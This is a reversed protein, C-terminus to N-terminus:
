AGAGSVGLAATARRRDRYRRALEAAVLGTALAMSPVATMQYRPINLSILAYFLLNFAGIGLLLLLLWDRRRVAAILVALLAPLGIVVFEDVWIGRYLLPLTAAAHELPHTVISMFLSRDLDRMAEIEGIGRTEMLDALRRGYGHQGNDYFGGPQALDFPEVVDAPFLRRALGNGFGRTWFVFAAAYQQPSMHNFVERTSLAIGSRSDTFAIRGASLDNRLIWGGVLSLYVLCVVASAGAVARRRGPKLIAMVAAGALMSATFPLFIAKVFTLAALSLGVAAWRGATGRAAWVAALMVLTLLWVALHDSLLHFWDKHMQVNFLLYGGGIGAATLSRTLLRIASFLTLGALGILAANAFQPVRYIADDCSGPQLLCTPTFSSFPRDFAMLVALLTAYGPERGVGAPVDDPTMTPAFTGHAYIHYAESLYQTSDGNEADPSRIKSGYLFPVLLSAVLFLVLAISKRRDYLVAM